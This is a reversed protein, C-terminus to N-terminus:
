PNAKVRSPLSRIRGNARPPSRLTRYRYPMSFPLMIRCAPAQDKKELASMIHERAQVVDDDLVAVVAGATGGPGDADAAAGLMAGSAAAPSAAVPASADSAAGAM